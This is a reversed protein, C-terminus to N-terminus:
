VIKKANNIENVTFSYGEKNCDVYYELIKYLFKEKTCETVLLLYKNEKDDRIATRFLFNGELTNYTRFIVDEDIKQHISCGTNKMIKDIDSILNDMFEIPIHSANNDANSWTGIDHLIQLTESIFELSYPRSQEETFNLM